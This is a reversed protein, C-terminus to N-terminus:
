NSDTNRGHIEEVTIDGGWQAIAHYFERNITQDYSRDTRRNATGKVIGLVIPDRLERKKYHLVQFGSFISLRKAKEVEKLVEPPPVELPTQPIFKDIETLTLLRMTGKKHADWVGHNIDAIQDGRIFPYGVSIAKVSNAFVEMGAEKLNEYYAGIDPSAEHPTMVSLVQQMPNM